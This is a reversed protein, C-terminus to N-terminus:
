GFIKNFWGEKRGAADGHAVQERKDLVSNLISEVEHTIDESNGKNNYWNLLLEKIEEIEHRVRTRAECAIQTRLERHKEDAIRSM